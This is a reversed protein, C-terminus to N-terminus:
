INENEFINLCSLQNGNADFITINVCKNTECVLDGWILEGSGFPDIILHVKLKNVIKSVAKVGRCFKGAISHCSCTGKRHSSLPIQKNKSWCM